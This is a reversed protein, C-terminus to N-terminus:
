DTRQPMVAVIARLADKDRRARLAAHSMLM